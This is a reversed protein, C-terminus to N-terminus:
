RKKYIFEDTVVNAVLRFISVIILFIRWGTSHEITQMAVILLLLPVELIRITKIM